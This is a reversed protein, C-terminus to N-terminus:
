YNGDTGRRFKLVALSVLMRMLSSDHVRYVRVKENNYHMDLESLVHIRLMGDAAASFDNIDLKLLGCLSEADYVNGCDIEGSMIGDIVMLTTKDSLAAFVDSLGTLDEGSPTTQRNLLVFMEPTDERDTYIGSISDMWMTSYTKHSGFPIDPFRREHFGRLITRCLMMLGASADKEDMEAVYDSIEDFLEAESVRSSVLRNVSVGLIEALPCLMDLSPEGEGTEWRSVTQPSTYLKEALAAQTLGAEKRLTKLTNYFDNM